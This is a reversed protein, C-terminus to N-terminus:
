VVLAVERHNWCIMINRNNGPQHMQIHSICNTHIMLQSTRFLSNSIKKQFYSDLHEQLGTWYFHELHELRFCRQSPRNYVALVISDIYISPWFIQTYQVIWTDSKATPGTSIITIGNINFFAQIWLVMFRMLEVQPLQVWTHRRNLVKLLM